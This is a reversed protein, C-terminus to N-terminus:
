AHDEGVLRNENLKEREDVIEYAFKMMKDYGVANDMIKNYHHACFMLEGTVGRVLVFAQANCRDCRDSLNLLWEKQMSPHAMTKMNYGEIILQISGLAM